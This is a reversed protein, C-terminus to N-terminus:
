RSQVDVSDNIGMDGYKRKWRLYAMELARFHNEMFLFEEQSVPRDQHLVTRLPVASKGFERLTNETQVPHTM